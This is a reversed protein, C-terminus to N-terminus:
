RHKIRRENDKIPMRNVTVEVIEDHLAKSESGLSFSLLNFDDNHTGGTPM